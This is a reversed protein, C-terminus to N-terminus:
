EVFQLLCSVPVDIESSHEYSLIATTDLSRDAYFGLSTGHIAQLEGNRLDEVQCVYGHLCKTVLRPGKWCVCLTEGIHFHGRTVVFFDGKQFIALAGHNRAYRVRHRKRTLSKEVIPHLEGVSIILKEIDFDKERQAESIAHPM